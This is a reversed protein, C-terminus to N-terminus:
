KGQIKYKTPVVGIEGFSRLSAPLKPKCGFILQHPGVEQNKVSTINALFAVTMVCETWVGSTLDDKLGTGNLM